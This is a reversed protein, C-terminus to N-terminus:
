NHEADIKGHERGTDDQLRIVDDLEPTSTEIFTLDSDAIVRHLHGPTVDFITGPSIDYLQLKSVHLNVESELMEGSLYKDVDFYEPSLLLTGNGSLVYNTEHKFKHVQLSTQKGAMFFIRKNAYPTRVGDAIWLEYGWPKSIMKPEVIM